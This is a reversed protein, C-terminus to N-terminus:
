NNDLIVRPCTINSISDMCLRSAAPTDLVRGPVEHRHVASLQNVNARFSQGKTVLSRTPSGSWMLYRCASELYGSQETVPDPPLCSGLERAWDEPQTMDGGAQNLDQLSLAHGLEHALTTSNVISTSIFIDNYIHTITHDPNAGYPAADCTWGNAHIPNGNIDAERSLQVFFVRVAEPLTATDIGFHTYVSDRNACSAERIPSDSTRVTIEPTDFVIGSRMSDFIMTAETLWTEALSQTSPAPDPCPFDERRENCLAASHEWAIYFHIPVQLMSNAGNVEVKPKDGLRDTWDTVRLELKMGRAQSFASIEPTCEEPDNAYNLQTCLGDDKLINERMDFLTTSKYADPGVWTSTSMTEAFLPIRGNALVVAEDAFDVETPSRQELLHIQDIEGSNSKKPHSLCWQIRYRIYREAVLRKGRTQKIILETAALEKGHPTREAKAEAALNTLSAQDFSLSISVTPPLMSSQPDLLVDVLKKSSLRRDMAASPIGSIRPVKRGILFRQTSKGILFRNAHTESKEGPGIFRLETNPSLGDVDLIASTVVDGRLDIHLDIPGAAGTDCGPVECGVLFSLPNLIPPPSPRPSIGKPIVPRHSIMDLLDDLCIPFGARKAGLIDDAAEVVLPGFFVLVVVAFVLFPKRGRARPLTRRRIRRIALSVVTSDKNLLCSLTPFSRRFHPRSDNRPALAQLDASSHSGDRITRKRSSGIPQEARASHFTSGLINGFLFGGVPSLGQRPRAPDCPPRPALRLLLPRIEIATTM